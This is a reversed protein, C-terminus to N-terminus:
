EISNIFTKKTEKRLGNKREVSLDGKGDKRDKSGKM